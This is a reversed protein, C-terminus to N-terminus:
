RSISAYLPNTCFGERATLLEGINEVYSSWEEKKATFQNFEFLNHTNKALRPFPIEYGRRKTMLAGGKMMMGAFNSFGSASLKNVIELFLRAYLGIADTSIEHFYGQCEANIGEDSFALEKLRSLCACVNQHFLEIDGSQAALKIGKMNQLYIRNVEPSEGYHYFLHSRYDSNFVAEM